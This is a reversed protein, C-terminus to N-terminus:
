WHQSSNITCVWVSENTANCHMGYQFRCNISSQLSRVPPSKPIKHSSSSLETSLLGSAEEAHEMRVDFPEPLKNGGM